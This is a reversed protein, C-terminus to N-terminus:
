PKDELAARKWCNCPRAVHRLGEFSFPERLGGVIDIYLSQCTPAHPAQEVAERLRDRERELERAARMEERWMGYIDDYAAQMDQWVEGAVARCLEDDIANHARLAHEVERPMDDDDHDAHDPNMTNGELEVHEDAWLYPGPM